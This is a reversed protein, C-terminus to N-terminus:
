CDADTMLRYYVTLMICMDTLLGSDDSLMYYPADTMWDLLHTLTM